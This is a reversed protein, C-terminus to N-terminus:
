NKWKKLMMIQVRDDRQIDILRKILDDGDLQTRLKELRESPTM